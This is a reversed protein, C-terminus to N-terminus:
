CWWAKASWVLGGGMSNPRLSVFAMHGAGLIEGVGPPVEGGQTKSPIRAKEKSILLLLQGKVVVLVCGSESEQLM